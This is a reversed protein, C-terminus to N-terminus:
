NLPIQKLNYGRYIEIDPASGGYSFIDISSIEYAYAYNETCFFVFNETLDYSIFKAQKTDLNYRCLGKNDSNDTNVANTGYDSVTGYYYLYNDKRVANVDYIDVLHKMNKASIDFRYVSRDSPSKNNLIEYYFLNDQKTIFYMDEKDIDFMSIDIEHKKSVKKNEADYKLITSTNLSDDQYEIFIFNDSSFMNNIEFDDATFILECTLNEFDFKYVSNKSAGYYFVEDNARFEIKEKTLIDGKKTGDSDYVAYGFNKIEYWYKGDYQPTVANSEFQELSVSKKNGNEFVEICNSQLNVATVIGSYYSTYNTSYNGRDSDPSLSSVSKIWVFNYLIVCILVASLVSSIIILAKKM